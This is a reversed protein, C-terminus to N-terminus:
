FIFPRQLTTKFWVTRWINLIRWLFLIDHLANYNFLSIVFVNNNSTNERSSFNHISFIFILYFINIHMEFWKLATVILLLFLMCIQSKQHLLSNVTSHVLRYVLLIICNHQLDFNDYLVRSFIFFDKNSANWRQTAPDYRHQIYYM